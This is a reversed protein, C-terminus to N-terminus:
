SASTGLEALESLGEDRRGDMLVLTCAREFRAGIREWGTVAEAFAGVDGTLRGRARALCAAAWVNEAAVPAAAALRAEADASGAIVAVEAALAWPYADFYWHRTRWWSDPESPVDHIAALAEDLRGQQVALRADAFAAMGAITFHVARTQLGAVRDRALTRWEQWADLDGRLGFALATAYISPAMWRAAPSGSREWAQRAERGRAVAEDFRGMLVLPVIPKSATMHATTAVATQDALATAADLAVMLEGASVANEAAMHVVDHIESGARPLDPRLRSLLDRREESVRFTSRLDGGMLWAAGLGDLAASILVPDDVDRAARLAEDFDAVDPRDVVRTSTWARAGAIHAQATPDDAPAIEVASRLLEQLHELPVDHEFIAPFRTGISVAEALVAAQTGTDGAAGAREAAAVALDFRVQGRMEVQAVHAADWLDQAAEADPARDAATVYHQRSESTFRRAYALHGLSRALRHATADDHAVALAARLDDAVRDFRERWAGWDSGALVGELEAARTAAWAAYRADVAKTEGAEALKELAYAHVTMLQAWREGSDTHHRVLLSKDALRGVLDALEGTGLGTVASASAIDFEGAFRGLRRLATREDEDLLDHSWDLVARLSRHRHDASRGGTLLRLRDALGTHLGAVGLAAIRATALEIALPMGDLEACLGGIATPDADFDADLARARDFFLSVAESGAVGGTAGSVLSLGGLPLVREGAVGIRERSTALITLESTDGLLATVLEAVDDVLHECNDLVLLSRGARLRELVADRLSRGPREMVGLVSAVAEVVFGARVSVLAVFTSGLPMTPALEGAVAAALRTKGAGGPGLLTVLRSERLAHATDRRERERGVFATWFPPLGRVTAAPAAAADAFSPALAALARRDAVGLKRLLSSIHTEVTRVSLHLRSAIQANSLHEGVAALVEAERESVRPVPASTVAM